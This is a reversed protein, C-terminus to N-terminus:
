FYFCSFTSIFVNLPTSYINKDVTKEIWKQRVLKREVYSDKQFRINNRNFKQVYKYDDFDELHIMWKFMEYYNEENLSREKNKKANM